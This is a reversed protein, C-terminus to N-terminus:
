GCLLFLPADTPKIGGGPYQVEGSYVMRALKTKVLVLICYAQWAREVMHPLGPLLAKRGDLQCTCVTERMYEPTYVVYQMTSFDM